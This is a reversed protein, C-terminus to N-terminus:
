FEFFLSNFIELFNPPDGDGVENLKSNKRFALEMKPRFYQFSKLVSNFDDILKGEEKSVYKGAYHRFWANLELFNTPADLWYARIFKLTEKVAHPKEIDRPVQGNKYDDLNQWSLIHPCVMETDPAKCAQNARQFDYYGQFYLPDSTSNTM